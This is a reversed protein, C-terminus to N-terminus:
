IVPNGNYNMVIFASSDTVSTLTLSPFTGMEKAQQFRFHQLNSQLTQQIRELREALYKSDGLLSIVFQALHSRRRSSKKKKTALLECM